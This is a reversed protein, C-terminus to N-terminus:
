FTFVRYSIKELDAIFSAERQRAASQYFAFVGGVVILMTLFLFSAAIGMRRQRERQAVQQEAAGIEELLSAGEDTEAIREAQLRALVLDKNALAARCHSEQLRERLSELRPNENWLSRAEELQVHCKGFERYTLSGGDLAGEVLRSLELSHTRQTAGSMYDQISKILDRVSGFRRGRERHLARMAIEELQQPVLRNPARKTPREVKGAAAKKLVEKSVDGSHPVTLTLLQYLIGGLLYVDTWEGIEAASRLTQEPAMYAPTGAPNSATMPTPLKTSRIKRPIETSDRDPLHVALGWDMLLVEGFEGLMVQSPKLDRHIIGKSHAFDVAQCVDILIPLHRALFEPSPLKRDAHIAEHWPTGRVLKMALLPQGAEDFGLDHVPVINPHELGAAALAEQRFLALMERRRDISSEQSFGKEKFYDERVMKVAIVRSLSVQLAEWIVGCGGRAVLKQLQFSAPGSGVGGGDTSVPIPEAENPEMTPLTPEPVRSMTPVEDALVSQLVPNFTSEPGAAVHLTDLFETSESDM